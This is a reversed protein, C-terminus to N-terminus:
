YLVWHHGDGFTKDMEASDKGGRKKQQQKLSSSKGNVMEIYKKANQVMRISNGERIISKDEDSIQPTVVLLVNERRNLSSM